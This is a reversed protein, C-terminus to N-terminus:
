AAKVEGGGSVAKTAVERAFALLADVDVAVPEAGHRKAAARPYARGDADTVVLAVTWPVSFCVFRGPEGSTIAARVAVMVERARRESLKLGAVIRGALIGAAEIVGAEFVDTLIETPVVPVVGFPGMSRDLQTTENM